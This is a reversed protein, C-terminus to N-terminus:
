ILILGCIFVYMIIQMKNSTYFKKIQPQRFCKLAYKNPANNVKQEQMLDDALHCWKIATM